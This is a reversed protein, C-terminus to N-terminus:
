LVHDAILLAAFIMLITGTLRNFALLIKPNKLWRRVIDGMFAIPAQWTINIAVLVLALTILQETPHGNHLDIFNPFLALFLIIVKPNLLNCLMADRFARRNKVPAAGGLHVISGHRFSQFGLGMLYLAGAVALTKFLIPSSAILVSVGLVALLTHVALGAQVGLVSLLGATRGSGLTARLIILTDPGPSVVVALATLFFLGLTAPPVPLTM